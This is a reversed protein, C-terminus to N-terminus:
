KRFCGLKEEAFTDLPSNQKTVILVSFDVRKNVTSIVFVNDPALNSALLRLAQLQRGTAIPRSKIAYASCLGAAQAGLPSEGRQEESQM